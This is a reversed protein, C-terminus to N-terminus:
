SIPERSLFRIEVVGYGFKSIVNYHMKNNKYKGVLIVYDNKQLVGALSYSIYNWLPYYTVNCQVAGMCYVLEGPKMM